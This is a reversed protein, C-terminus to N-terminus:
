QARRTLPPAGSGILRDVADIKHEFLVAGQRAAVARAAALTGIVTDPAAGEAHAILAKLRGIEATLWNEQELYGPGIRGLCERAAAPLGARLCAEARFLTCFSLFTPERPIGALGRAGIRLGDEVRGAVLLAASEFIDAYTAWIPLAHDRALTHLRDAMAPIGDFRGQLVPVVCGSFLTVNCLDHARGREEALVRARAAWDVAAAEDSVIAAIEALGVASMSAHHSTGFRALGEDHEEPRYDAFFGALQDRAEAFRGVFLLATGLTRRSLLREVASGGACLDRLRWSLDLAGAFDGTSGIHVWKSLLLPVVQERHRLPQGLAEVRPIETLVETSGFGKLAVLAAVLNLRIALEVEALGAEDSAAAVDDLARRFHGIAEAYASRGAALMGARDWYRSAAAPDQARSLQHAVVQPLAAAIRPFEEILARAIRAHRAIRDRRLLTRYAADQLLRHRFGVAPGFASHGVKLVGSEILAAVGRHTEAESLGSVAVLVSIPFENGIVSGIQALERGDALRDLRALLADELTAPLPRDAADGHAERTEIWYRTLEEAFLPRGDCRRAIEAVQEDSIAVRAARSAAISRILDEVADGGLPELTVVDARSLTCWAPTPGPRMTAILHIPEHSLRAGVQTLVETTSPDIWQIDEVVLKGAERGLALVLDALLEILAPREAQAHQRDVTKATRNSLMDALLATRSESGLGLGDLLGAVGVITDAATATTGIRRMLYRQIPHFPTGSFYPTCQLMPVPVADGGAVHLAERALRSKGVGSEGTILSLRGEGAAAAAQQGRLRSLEAGRGKFGGLVTDARLADFRSDVEAHGVIRWARQGDPMGKLDVHGADVCHFLNGLRERTSQSVLIAGPETAAQLRAALNPIEGVVTGVLTGDADYPLGVVTAGTAIGIRVQLSTGAVPEMSRVREVIALAAAVASQATHEETRSLGFFVVIGDGVFGEIRGGFPTLAAEVMARFRGIVDRYDEPELLTSLRTSGVLDCFLATVLRQEAQPEPAPAPPAAATVASGAIAVLIRRRHGVATVGIERLDEVTLAPLVDM